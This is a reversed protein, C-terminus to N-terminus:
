ATLEPSDPLARQSNLAAEVFDAILNLEDISFMELIERTIDMNVESCKNKKEIIVYVSYFSLPFKNLLVTIPITSSSTACFTCRFQGIPPSLCSGSVEAEAVVIYRM